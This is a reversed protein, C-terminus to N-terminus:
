QSGKYAKVQQIYGANQFIADKIIDHAEIAGVCERITILANYLSIIVDDKEASERALEEIHKYNEEQIAKHIDIRIYKTRDFTACRSM